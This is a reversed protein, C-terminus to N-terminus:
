LTLPPARANRPAGASRSHLRGLPPSPLARAVLPRSTPQLLHHPAALYASAWHVLSGAGHADHADHHRPAHDHHDDHAHDHHDLVASM